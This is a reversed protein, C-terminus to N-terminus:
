GRRFDCALMDFFGAEKSFKILKEIEMGSLNETNPFSFGLVEKRIRALRECEIILHEVKEEATSCYRCLGDGENRSRRLYQNTRAHGTLVSIRARIQARSKSILRSSDTYAGILTKAYEGNDPRKAIWQNKAEAKEWNLIARASEAHSMPTEIDVTLKDVGDNALRDARENGLHGSHGPIWGV